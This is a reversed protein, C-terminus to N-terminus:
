FSQVQKVLQGCIYLPVLDGEELNSGVVPLKTKVVSVILRFEVAVEDFVRAAEEM